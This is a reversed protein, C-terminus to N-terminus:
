PVIEVAVANSAFDWPNRLAYAFNMITGAPLAPPIPGLTDLQATAKGNADLNGSFNIFAPLSMHSLIYDTFWDRNLPITM